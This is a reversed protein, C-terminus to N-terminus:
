SRRLRTPRENAELQVRKKLETPIVTAIDMRSTLTLKRLIVSLQTDVTRISSGRRAAIASNAWGAAVLVAIEREAPSLEQWRSTARSDAPMKRLDDGSRGSVMIRQLEPSDPRILAGQNMAAAYTEDGLISEIVDATRHEESAVIALEAVSIGMSRHAEAISGQLIAIDMASDALEHRGSDGSDIRDALIRTLAAAGFRLAWTATWPDIGAKLVGAGVKLAEHPDGHLTLALMWALEASPIVWGADDSKLARDLHQRSFWLAQPGNGVMSYALAEFLESRQEGAKDGSEAFKSRARAFVHPARPDSRTLMLELGWTFEVVAPLGIDSLATERWEHRQAVDSICIDACEELLRAGYAYHGQWLALHSIDALAAVRLEIPVPGIDRTAEMARQIYATMSSPAYSIVFPCQLSIFAIATEIGVAAEDPTTLSTEIGTLINEWAGRTWEIWDSQERSSRMASGAVVRDRYYRRLRALLREEDLEGTRNRLQGSVFVRVSELLFYRVATSTINTSVLSRETLTELLPEITESPLAEDACVTVIADLEAGSIRSEYYHAEFSTAFVSMRDLLLQEDDTCLGYSWSIISHGSLHREEVGARVGHSWQLRKDDFNGTLERLVAKTPRNRLRAAALRIFLPNNDVHLCIEAATSLQDPSDSIPRGIIAARRRLLELAHARSLPPVDILHEDAWGMAQRSTALITLRPITLLRVILQAAGSLVHECNDMVLILRRPEAPGPTSLIEILVDAAPRGSMDIKAISHLIEEAIMNSTADGKM